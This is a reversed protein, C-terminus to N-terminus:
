GIIAQSSSLVSEICIQSINVFINVSRSSPRDVTAFTSLSLDYHLIYTINPFIAINLVRYWYQFWCYQILLPSFLINELQKNYCIALLQRSPRCFLTEEVAVIKLASLNKCGTVVINSCTTYVTTSLYWKKRIPKFRRFVESLTPDWRGRGSVLTWYKPSELGILFFYYKDVVTYM